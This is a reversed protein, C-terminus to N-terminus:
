PQRLRRAEDAAVGRQLDAEVAGDVHLPDAPPGDRGHATVGVEADARGSGDTAQRDDRQAGTAPFPEDVMTGATSTTDVLRDSMWTTTVSCPM